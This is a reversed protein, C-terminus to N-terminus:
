SKKVPEQVKYTMQGPFTWKGDEEMMWEARCLDKSTPATMTVSIDTSEGPRVTPIPTSIESRCSSEELPLDIRTIRRNEWTVSGSNRIRFKKVFVEGPNVPVACDPYNLDKEFASSDGRHIAPNKRREDNMPCQSGARKVVPGGPWDPVISPANSPSAATDGSADPANHHDVLTTVAATTAILVLAVAAALWRNRIAGARKPSHDSDVSSSTRTTQQRETDPTDGARSSTNRGATSVEDPGEFPREPRDLLATPEAVPRDSRTQGTTSNEQEADLRARVEHWRDNLSDPNQGLAALFQQTTELSPFRYGRTAEHLTTHSICGSRKSMARFSPNGSAQRKESLGEAFEEILRESPPVDRRHVERKVCAEETSPEQPM